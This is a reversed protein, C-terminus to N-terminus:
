LRTFCPRRAPTTLAATVPPAAVDIIGIGAVETTKVPSNGELFDGQSSSLAFVAGNASASSQTAVWWNVAYRGAENFTIVGTAANYGINGSSYVTTDFIVNGGSAVSGAALREIQLTIDSL